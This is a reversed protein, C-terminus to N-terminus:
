VFLYLLFVCRQTVASIRSISNPDTRGATSERTSGWAVRHLAGTCSRDLLACRGAILWPVLPSWRGNRIAPGNCPAGCRVTYGLTTNDANLFSIFIDEATGVRHGANSGARWLVRERCIRHDHLLLTVFSLCPLVFKAVCDIYCNSLLHLWVPILAAMHRQFGNFTYAFLSM